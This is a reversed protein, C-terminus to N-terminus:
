TVQALGQPKFVKVDIAAKRQVDRAIGGQVLRALGKRDHTYMAILDVGERQAFDVVGQSVSDSIVVECRWRELDGKLWRMVGTLYVRANFRAGEERQSGPVRYGGVVHARAPPIVRLLMVEGDSALEGRIQGFVGESETSGDLPILVSRYM